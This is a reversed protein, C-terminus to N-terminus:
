PCSAPPSGGSCRFAAPSRLGSQSSSLFLLRGPIPRKNEVRSLGPCVPTFSGQCFASGSFPQSRVHLVFCDGYQALHRRNRKKYFGAFRYWGISGALGGSVINRGACDGETVARGSLSGLPPRLTCGKGRGRPSTAPRLSSPSPLCAAFCPGYGWLAAIARETVKPSLEGLPLALLPPHPSDGKGRGSPSAAPRLSSPSPLHPFGHGCRLCFFDRETGQPSLEGWLPLWPVPCFRAATGQVCFFCARSGETERAQILRKCRM